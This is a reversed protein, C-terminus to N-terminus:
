VVFSGPFSNERGFLVVTYAFSHDLSFMDDDAGAERSRRRGIMEGPPAHPINEDELLFL